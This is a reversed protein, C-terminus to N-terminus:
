ARRDTRTRVDGSSIGPRRASSSLTPRRSRKSDRPSIPLRASSRTSKRPAPASSKASWSSVQPSASGRRFGRGTRAARHRRSGGPYRDRRSRRTRGCGRLRAPLRFLGSRRRGHVKAVFGGFRGIAGAAADQYRRILAGLLEPDVAGSLATSGVMDCFLVTVQRREAEGSVAM